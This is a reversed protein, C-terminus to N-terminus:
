PCTGPLYPCANVTFIMGDNEHQLKEKDIIENLIYPADWVEFM